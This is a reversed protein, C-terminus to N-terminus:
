WTRNQMNYHSMVVSAASAINLSRAAGDFQPIYIVKDVNDLVDNSLGLGEEGYVFASKAPLEVDYIVEPHYDMVNDVGFITYGQEHLDDFVPRYDVAHRLPSIHHLGVTGKRMFRRNGILIMDSGLFCENSRLVTAKNFDSTLNFAITVMPSRKTALDEKIDGIFMQKYKDAVNTMNNSVSMFDIAETSKETVAM